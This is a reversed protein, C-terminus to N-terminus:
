PKEEQQSAHQREGYSVRLRRLGIVIGGESVTIPSSTRAIEPGATALWVLDLWVIFAVGFSKALM